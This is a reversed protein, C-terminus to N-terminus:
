REDKYPKISLPYYSEISAIAQDYYKCPIEAKLLCDTTMNQELINGEHNQIWQYARNLTEYDSRIEFNRYLQHESITAQELTEKASARYATILGSVGLKTGGFYRVSVVLCNTIKLSDIQGLIPKGATGAPEGDDNARYHDRNLGLRWAYCHHTAKPHIERLTNLHHRIDEENKVPFAFGFFKSGKEKYLSTVAQDITQYTFLDNM